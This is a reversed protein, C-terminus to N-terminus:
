DETRNTSVVIAVESLLREADHLSTRLGCHNETWDAFRALLVAVAARHEEDIRDRDQALDKLRAQYARQSLEGAKFCKRLRARDDLCAGLREAFTQNLEALLRRARRCEEDVRAEHRSIALWTLYMEGLMRQATEVGRVTFEGGSAYRYEPRHHALMAFAWGRGDWHRSLGVIPSIISIEGAGWNARATGTVLQGEVCITFTREVWDGELPHHSSPHMTSM